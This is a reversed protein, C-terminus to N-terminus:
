ILVFFHDEEEIHKAVECARNILKLNQQRWSNYYSLLM